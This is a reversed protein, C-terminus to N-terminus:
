GGSGVAVASSTGAQAEPSRYRWLSAKGLSWVEDKATTASRPPPRRAVLKIGKKARLQTRAVERTVARAADLAPSFAAKM